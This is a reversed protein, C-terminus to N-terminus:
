KADQFPHLLRAVRLVRSTPARDFFARCELPRCSRIFGGDGAHRSGQEALIARAAVEIEGLRRCRDVIVITSGVEEVACSMTCCSTSNPPYGSDAIGVLM